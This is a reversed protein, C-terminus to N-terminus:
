LGFAAETLSHSKKHSFFYFIGTGKKCHGPFYNM